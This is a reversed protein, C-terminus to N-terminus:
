SQQNPRHVLYTTGDEGARLDIERGGAYTRVVRGGFRTVQPGTATLLLVRRSAIDTVPNDAPDSAVVAELPFSAEHELVEATVPAQPWPREIALTGSAPSVRLVLEAHRVEAAEVIPRHAQRELGLRGGRTVAQVRYGARDIGHQQENTALVTVDWTLPGLSLSLDLEHYGSQAALRLPDFTLQVLLADALHDTEICAAPVDGVHAEVHVRGAVRHDLPVRVQYVLRTEDARFDELTGARRRPHTLARARAAGSAARRAARRAVDVPPAVEPASGVEAGALAVLREIRDDRCARFAEQYQPRALGVLAADVRECLTRAQELYPEREHDGARGIAGLVERLDVDVLHSHVLEALERTGLRDVTDLVMLAAAVRDTVSPLSASLGSISSARERWVYTPEALTDVAAAELHARLTVPFDEFRMEPWAYGHEDWFSRRWMKNWAMRDRMLLPIERISTRQRRASFPERHAWSTEVPRTLPLRWVHSAAFDSGSEDLSAVFQEFARPAVLDDSDLFTLYEGRAHATGTNRAAGLGRNEQAVVVFRPDTDAFRRAITASGDTSGDDVLICEFDGFTQRTLSRLFPELYEEVGYYPVIASVRPSSM